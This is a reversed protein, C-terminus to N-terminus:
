GHAPVSDIFKTLGGDEESYDYELRMCEEEKIKGHRILVDQAAEYAGIFESDYLIPYNEYQKRTGCHKAFALFLDELTEGVPEGVQFSLIRAIRSVENHTDIGKFKIM